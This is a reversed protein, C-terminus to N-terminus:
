FLIEGAERRGERQLRAAEAAERRALLDAEGKAKLEDRRVEWPWRPIKLILPWGPVSRLAEEM